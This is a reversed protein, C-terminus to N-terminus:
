SGAAGDNEIEVLFERMEALTPSSARRVYFGSTAVGLQLAGSLELGLLRGICFGANFHDGAGTTIKPRATFPGDMCVCGTADAAAAFHTPHIVVTDIQLAERVQTATLSVAEHTEAPQPFQLVGCVQRAEALNLGLIVRFYKQFETIQQLVRALDERSRKAPDALDFFLWRKEGTLQPAVRELLQDLIDGMQTLMTWNVLAILQSEECIRLLEPEPVFQTLNEWNVQKLSEHKGLMLKADIFELADTYGPEAISYVTARSTLDHFVPHVLPLGLNGIYTLATGYAGLANAMIPGNGGLKVMQTVLEFNGSHGAASAIRQAFEGTAELRTYDTTTERTKVVHLITDVFGDLGVLVRARGLALDAGQLQDLVTRHTPM